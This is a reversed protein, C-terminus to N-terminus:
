LLLFKSKSNSAEGALFCTFISLKYYMKKEALCSSDEYALLFIIQVRDILQTISFIHIQTRAIFVLFKSLATSAVAPWIPFMRSFSAEWRNTASKRWKFWFAIVINGEGNTTRVKLSSGSSMQTNTFRVFTHNRCIESLKSNRKGRNMNLRM